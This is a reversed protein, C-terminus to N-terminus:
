AVQYCNLGQGILLLGHLRHDYRSERSRLIEQQLAMRMLHVGSIEV